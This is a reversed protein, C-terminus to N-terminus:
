ESNCGLDVLKNNIPFKASYSVVVYKCYELEIRNLWEDLKRNVMGGTQDEMTVSNVIMHYM